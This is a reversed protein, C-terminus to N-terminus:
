NIPTLTGTYNGRGIINAQYTDVDTATGETVEFDRDTLQVTKGESVNVLTFTPGQIQGNYEFVVPEPTVLMEDKLEKPTIELMGDEVNIQYPEDGYDYYFDSPQLGMWYTGANTGTVKTKYECEKKIKLAEPHFFAEGKSSSVTYGEEFQEYGTYYKKFTDNTRTGAVTIIQLEQITLVVYYQM